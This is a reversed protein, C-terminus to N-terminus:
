PRLIDVAAQLENWVMICLFLTVQNESGSLSQLEAQSIHKTNSAWQFHYVFPSIRPGVLRNVPSM